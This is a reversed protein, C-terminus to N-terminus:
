AAGIDVPSFQRRFEFLSRLDKELLDLKESEWMWFKRRILRAIGILSEDSLDHFNREDVEKGFELIRERFVPHIDGEQQIDSQEISKVASPVTTGARYSGFAIAGLIRMMALHYQTNNPLRTDVFIKVQAGVLLDLLKSAAMGPLWFNLDGPTLVSLGQLFAESLDEFSFYNGRYLLRNASGPLPWLLNSGTTINECESLDRAEAITGVLSQENEFPTLVYFVKFTSRPLLRALEMIAMRERDLRDQERPKGRYMRGLARAVDARTCERGFQFQHPQDRLGEFFEWLEASDNEILISPDVFFNLLRPMAGYKRRFADILQLTRKRNGKEFPHNDNAQLVSVRRGPIQTSMEDVYSEIPLDYGHKPSGCYQCQNACRNSINFNAGVGDSYQIPIIYPNGSTIFPRKGTGRGMVAGDLSRYFMGQPVTNPECELAAGGPTGAFRMTGNNLGQILKRLPGGQGVCVIDALGEGLCRRVTSDHSVTEQGAKFADVFHSGGALVPTSPSEQRLIGSVARFLPYDNSMLSIAIITGDHEMTHARSRLEKLFDAESADREPIAACAILDDVSRWLARFTIRVASSKIGAKGEEIRALSIFLLKRFTSKM